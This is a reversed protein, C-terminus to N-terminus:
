SPLTGHSYCFSLRISKFFSSRSRSHIWFDDRRFLSTFDNSRINHIIRQDLPFWHQSPSQFLLKRQIDVHPKGPIPSNAPIWHTPPKPLFSPQPSDNFKAGAYFQSSTPSGSKMMRTPTVTKPRTQETTARRRKGNTNVVSDPRPKVTKSQCTSPTSSNNNSSNNSAPSQRRPTGQFLSYMLNCLHADASSIQPMLQSTFMNAELSESTLVQPSPPSRASASCSKPLPRLDSQKSFPRLHHHSYHHHHPSALASPSPQFAVLLQQHM